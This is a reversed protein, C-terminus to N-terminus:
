PPDSTGAAPPEAAPAASASGDRAIREGIARAVLRYGAGTLHCCNDRYVPEQVERFMMTLDHFRVGARRLDEGQQALLPYGRVVAKQYDGAALAVREEERAMPKSGQVYQNPQLFHEYVIGNADCLRKMQLSSNKWVQALYSYLDLDSGVSMAPGSTAYSKRQELRQQQLESNLRSWEAYLLQDRSRWVLLLLNSRELGWKVFREAWQTRTREVAAIQALLKLAEPDDVGGVRWNWARPYIPAVGQPTNEFPPLAVENFGDVNLVLDFHAGQALLYALALFQQPQKYGGAAVCLLHVTRGPRALVSQLEGAAYNCVGSAFSGGFVGVILETDSAPLIQGPDGITVGNPLTAPDPVFGLYPHIFERGYERPRKTDPRKNAAASQVLLADRYQQNPFRAGHLSWYGLSVVAEGVILAVLVGACVLSSRQLARKLMRM